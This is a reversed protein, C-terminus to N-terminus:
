EPVGSYLVRTKVRSHSMKCKAPKQVKRLLGNSPRRQDAYEVLQPCVGSCEGGGASGVCGPLSCMVELGAGTGGM